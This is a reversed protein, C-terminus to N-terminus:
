VGSLRDMLANVREPKWATSNGCRGAMNCVTGLNPQNLMVPPPLSSPHLSRRRMLPDPMFGPTPSPEVVVSGTKVHVATVQDSGVEVLYETGRVATVATPTRVTWSGDTAPQVVQSILGVDLAMQAARRQGQSSMEFQEIKFSSADSVILVSGDIFQLKARGPNGTRIEAGRELKTGAVMPTAKGAVMLNVEGKVSKVEAVPAAFSSSCLVAFLAFRGLTRAVNQTIPKM